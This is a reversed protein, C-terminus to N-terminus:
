RYDKYEATYTWAPFQKFFIYYGMAKAWDYWRKILSIHQIRRTSTSVVATPVFVKKGPKSGIKFSFYTDEYYTIDLYKKDDMIKLGLEKRFALNYGSSMLTTKGLLMKLLRIISFYFTSKFTKEKPFSIGHTFIVQDDNLFPQTIERLWHQDAVCDSDIQVIIEGKAALVGSRRAWTIGQHSESIVKCGFQEAIEKTRDTSNNDVVIIEFPFDVQQKQLSELVAPLVKEENFAPIVVTIM